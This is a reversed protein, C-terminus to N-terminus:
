NNKTKIVMELGSIFRPRDIYEREIRSRKQFLKDSMKLSRGANKM